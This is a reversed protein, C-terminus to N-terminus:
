SKSGPTTMLILHFLGQLVSPITWSMTLIEQINDCSLHEAVKCPLFSLSLPSLSKGLPSCSSLVLALIQGQGDSELTQARLSDVASPGEHFDTSFPGCLDLIM